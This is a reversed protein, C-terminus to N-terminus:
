RPMRMACDAPVEQAIYHAVVVAPDAAATAAVGGGSSSSSLNILGSCPGPCIKCLIHFISANGCQNAVYHAGGGLVKTPISNIALSQLGSATKLPLTGDWRSAFDPLSAILFRM